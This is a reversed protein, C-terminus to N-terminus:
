GPTKSQDIVGIEVLRLAEKQQLLCKKHQERSESMLEFILYNPSIRRVLDAVGPCTFPKHRDIKMVYELLQWQRDEYLTSMSPPNQQTKRALTGSLSQNLHIGKIHDAFEGHLDLQRNIYSLGEEQTKLSNKTHLLHGTDLMIGINKYHIGQLLRRTIEPKTFDFGPYWLNELLLLPGDNIGDFLTNLLSCTNDVVEEDSYKFRRTFVEETSCDAVHFVVYEAGYAEAKSLDNRFRSLLSERVLGGYYKECNELNDFENILAEENGNWFDMWYSFFSMHVGTVFDPLVLGSPDPDYCMLELGDFGELDAAIEKSNSYRLLDFENTTFNFLTKM